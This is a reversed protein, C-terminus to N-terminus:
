PSERDRFQRWRVAYLVSVVAFYALLAWLAVSHLGRALLTACLVALAAAGLCVAAITRPGMAVVARGIAEKRNLEPVEAAIELGRTFLWFRAVTAAVFLPVVVAWMIFLGFVFPTALLAVMSLVYMWRLSRAFAEARDPPVIYAKGWRGFPVLVRRGESDLRYTNATLADLYGM